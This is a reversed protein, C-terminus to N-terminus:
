VQGREKKGEEAGEKEFTDAKSSHSQLSSLGEKKKESKRSGFPDQKKARTRGDKGKQVKKNANNSNCINKTKIFDLTGVEKTEQAKLTM